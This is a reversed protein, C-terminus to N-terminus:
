LESYSFPNDINAACFMTYRFPFKFLVAQLLVFCVSALRSERHAKPMKTQDREALVTVRECAISIVIKNAQFIPSLSNVLTRKCCTKNYKSQPSLFLERPNAQSLFSRSLGFDTNNLDAFSESRGINILSEMSADFRM